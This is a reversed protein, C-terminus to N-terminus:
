EGGGVLFLHSSLPVYLFEELVKRAYPNQLFELREIDRRGVLHIGRKIPGMRTPPVRLLLTFVGTPGVSPRLPLEERGRHSSCICDEVM